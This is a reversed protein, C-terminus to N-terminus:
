QPDGASCKTPGENLEYTGNIRFVFNDDKECPAYLGTNDVWPGSGTKSEAKVMKWPARTLLDTNSQVIPDSSSNKKCAALSFVIIVTAIFPLVTTRNRIM